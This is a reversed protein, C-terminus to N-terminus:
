NKPLDTFTIFSQSSRKDLGKVPLTLSKCLSLNKGAEFFGITVTASSRTSFTYSVDGDLEGRTNGDFGIMYRTYTRGWSSELQAYVGHWRTKGFTLKTPAGNNTVLIDFMATGYEGIYARTIEFTFDKYQKVYASNRESARMTDVNTDQSTFSSFPATEGLLGLVLADKELTVAALSRIEGTTTDILRAFVRVDTPRNVFKGTIIAEVKLLKGLNKISDRDIPGTLELKQEKMVKVIMSREVINFKGTQFLRTTMEESLTNGLESEKGVLNTFGVVAVHMENSRHTGDAIQRALAIMQADFNSVASDGSTSPAFASATSGLAYMLLFVLFIFPRRVFAHM